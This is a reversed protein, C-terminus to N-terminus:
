ADELQRLTAESVRGAFLARMEAVVEEDGVLAGAEAEALATDLHQALDRAARDAQLAAYTELDLIVAVGVGDETVIKPRGTELAERVYKSGAGLRSMPVLDRTVDLEATM